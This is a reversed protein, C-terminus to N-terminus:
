ENQECHKANSSIKTDKDSMMQLRVDCQVIKAVVVRVRIMEKESTTAYLQMYILCLM